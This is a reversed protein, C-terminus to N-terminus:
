GVHKISERLAKFESGQLEQNIKDILVKTLDKAIKTEAADAPLVSLYMRSLIGAVIGVISTGFAIKLGKLLKTINDVEGPEFDLLAIFIGYFTGLIGITTLIAPWIHPVPFLARLGFQEAVSQSFVPIVVLFFLIIIVISFVKSTPDLFVAWGINYGLVLVAIVTLVTPPLLERRM